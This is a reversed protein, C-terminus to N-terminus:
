FPTGTAFDTGYAYNTLLLRTLAPESVMERVQRYKSRFQKLSRKYTEFSQPDAEVAHRPNLRMALSTVFLDDFKEPFPFTDAAILSSIRKWEGLDARYFWERTVSDTSLTLSTSGEVTRGNGVLTLNHTSFNGSKDQVALRAGDRPSPNLYVTLPSTINVSLLSNDPVVWNATPTVAYGPFNNPASINNRGIPVDELPEGMEDGFVSYFVRNLLRLAETSEATTPTASIALLNSERYADKIIDSVLTM